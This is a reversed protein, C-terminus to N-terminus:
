FYFDDYDSYASPACYYTEGSDDADGMLVGVLHGLDTVLPSQGLSRNSMKRNFEAKANRLEHKGGGSAPNEKAKALSAPFAIKRLSEFDPAPLKRLAESELRKALGWDLIDDADIDSHRGLPDLAFIRAQIREWEARPRRVRFRLKNLAVLADLYDPALEAARAYAAFAEEPREQEERLKGLLYCAAPAPTAGSAAETLIREAIPITGPSDFVGACGFCLSAVFGFQTPLQRFTEEYHRNAAEEMGLERLREAKRWQVCYAASFYKEAEEYKALSRRVLGCEQLDDGEEALRVAKVAGRLFDAEKAQGRAALIDALVAYSRIRDGARTEGDTPDTEVAKRAVAEAEELRGARRLAEAKWILPREEYRDAAYLDDMFRLFADTAMEDALIQFPWDSPHNESKLVAQRALAAADAGRGTKALAEAYIEVLGGGVESAFQLANTAPLDPDGELLAVIDKHRGAKRYLPLIAQHLRYPRWYSFGQERPQVLGLAVEFAKDALGAAALADVGGLERLVEQNAALLDAHAALETQNTTAALLRLLERYPETIRWGLDSRQGESMAAIQRRWDQSLAAITEADDDFAALRLRLSLRRLSHSPNRAPKEAFEALKARARATRGCRMATALYINWNEEVPKESNLVFNELFEMEAEGGDTFIFKARHFFNTPFRSAFASAAPFGDRSLLGRLVQASAQKFDDYGKPPRAKNAKQSKALLVALADASLDGGSEDAAEDDEGNDENEDDDEDDEDGAYGGAEIGFSLSAFDFRAALSDYLARGDPTHDVLAFGPAAALADQHARALALLEPPTQKSYISPFLEAEKNTLVPATLQWLRDPPLRLFYDPIKISSCFSDPDGILEALESFYATIDSPIRGKPNIDRELQRFVAEATKNSATAARLRELRNSAASEDHALRDFVYQLATFLPVANTTGAARAALGERVAPWAEASPTRAFFPGLLRRGYGSDLRSFAYRDGTEVLRDLLSLWAKAEEAPPASLPLALYDQYLDALSPGNTTAPDASEEMRAKILSLATAADPLEAFAPAVAACFVALLISMRKM